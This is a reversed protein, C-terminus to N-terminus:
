VERQAESFMQEGFLRRLANLTLERESYIYVIAIAITKDCLVFHQKAIPGVNAM